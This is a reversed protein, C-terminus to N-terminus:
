DGKKKDDKTEKSPSESRAPETVMGLKEIGVERLAAMIEVVFGYPVESDARLYVQQDPKEGIVAKIKAALNEFTVEVKDLHIKKEKTLTIVLRENKTDLAKATVQPLNVDVGQVLMPAAIMFIILLVLMVDVLPTVNIESVVSEEGGGSLNMAM